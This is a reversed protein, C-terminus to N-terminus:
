MQDRLANCLISKTLKNVRPAQYSNCGDTDNYDDGLGFVGPSTQGKNYITECDFLEGIGFIGNLSM